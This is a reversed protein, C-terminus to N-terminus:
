QYYKEFWKEGSDIGICGDKSRELEAEVARIVWGMDEKFMELARILGEIMKLGSDSILKMQKAIDEDTDNYIDQLVEYSEKETYENLIQVHTDESMWRNYTEIDQITTRFDSGSYKRKQNLLVLKEYSKKAMYLKKEVQEMNARLELFYKVGDYREKDTYAPEASNLLQVFDINEEGDCYVDIAEHLSMIQTGEIRAGGETADVVTLETKVFIQNETWRRFMDMAYDTYVVNGDIDKIKYLEIKTETAVNNRLEGYSDESHVKNGTYALDQGVLIVKRFGLTTVLSFANNAVSGGSAIPMYGKDQAKWLPYGLTMPKYDFFRHGEHFVSIGSNADFAVYVPVKRISENEYLIDVRKQPDITITMDPMIGAKVLTKNAADVSIIFAKGKARALEKVNKDLSPGAAVIIVPVKEFDVNQFLPYLSAANYQYISDYLNAMRNTNVRRSFKLVTNRDVIIDEMRDFIMKRLIMSEREYIKGYNPSIMMQIYTYNAYNMYKELLEKYYLRGMDGAVIAIKEDAIIDEMDLEQIVKQFIYKDPEYVLIAIEPYARRLARIYCLNAMGLVSVVGYYEHIKCTKIWEEAAADADYRSNLYWDRNGMTIGLILEGKVSMDLFTDTIINEYIYKENELTDILNLLYPKHNLMCQLNQELITVEDMQM